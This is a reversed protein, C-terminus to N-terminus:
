SALRGFARVERSLALLRQGVPTAQFPGGDTVIRFISYSYADLGERDLTGASLKSELESLIAPLGLRRGITDADAILEERLSHVRNQLAQRESNANM